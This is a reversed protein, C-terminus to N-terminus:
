WVEGMFFCGVGGVFIIVWGGDWNNTAAAIKIQRQRRTGSQRLWDEIAKNSEEENHNKWNKEISELFYQISDNNVLLILNYATM